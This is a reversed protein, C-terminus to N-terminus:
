SLMASIQCIASAGQLMMSSEFVLVYSKFTQCSSLIFNWNFSSSLYIFYVQDAELGIRYAEDQEERLCCNLNRAEQEQRGAILSDSQEEIVVQLTSM